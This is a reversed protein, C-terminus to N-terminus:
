SPAANGDAAELLSRVRHVPADDPAIAEAREMAARSRAPERAFYGAAAAGLHAELSAASIDGAREFADLAPEYRRAEQYLRGLQLAPLLASPELDLALRYGTEALEFRSGNGALWQLHYIVANLMHLRWDQPTLKLGANAVTSARPLDDALLLKLGEALLRENVPLRDLASAEGRAGALGSSAVPGVPVTACAGLLGLLAASAVWLLM